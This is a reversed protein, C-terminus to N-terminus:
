GFATCTAPSGLRLGGRDNLFDPVQRPTRAFCAAIAGRHLGSRWARERTEPRFVLWRIGVCYAYFRSQVSAWTYRAGVRQGGVTGRSRAWDDPRSEVFEDTDRWAAFPRLERGDWGALRIM